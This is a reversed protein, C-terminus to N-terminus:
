LIIEYNLKLRDVVSIINKCLIELNQAENYVPIVVSLDKINSKNEEIKM